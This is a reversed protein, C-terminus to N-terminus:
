WLQTDKDIQPSMSTSTHFIRKHSHKGFSSLKGCGTGIVHISRATVMLASSVPEGISSVYWIWLRNGEAKEEEEKRWM